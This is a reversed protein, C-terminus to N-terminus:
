ARPGHAQRGIIIERLAAGFPTLNVVGNGGHEFPRHPGDMMIGRKVLAMCTQLAVGRTQVRYTWCGPHRRLRALLKTQVPSLSAIVMDIAVTGLGAGACFAAREAAQHEGPYLHDAADAASIASTDLPDIM